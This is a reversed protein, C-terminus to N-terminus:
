IGPNPKGVGATGAVAVVLPTGRRALLADLQELDARRGAFDPLDAPLQAPRPLPQRRTAPGAPEAEGRLIAQHAQRLEPGPEIGLDDVLRRRAAAYYDLAAATRGAGHLARLYVATLPEVLPHDDVLSSLQDLVGAADGTGLAARAWAVVADLYQQRWSERTQEAWRGAVGALPEGGWLDIASRLLRAQDPGGTGPERSLQVLRRFRHVDVRDRDLDLLYGGSRRVLGVPEELRGCIGRLRTLHAQLARRGRGPAEAAWVRDMLVEVPVSRGADVALAALVLRRQPPGIDVVGRATVVEVTGILQIMM